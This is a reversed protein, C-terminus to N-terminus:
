RRAVAGEEDTDASARSDAVVLEMARTVPIRIREVKNGEADEIEYRQYETLQEQQSLRLKQLEVTPRDVIKRDIEGEAFGFYMAVAALVVVVMLVLSVLSLFWTAGPEPDDMQVRYDPNEQQDSM